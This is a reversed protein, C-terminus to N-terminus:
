KAAKKWSSQLSINLINDRCRLMPSPSSPALAPTEDLTSQMRGTRVDVILLHVTQVTLRYPKICIVSYPSHRRHFSKSRHYSNVIM